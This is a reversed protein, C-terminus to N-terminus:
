IFLFLHDYHVLSFSAFSSLLQSTIKRIERIVGHLTQSELGQGLKWSVNCPTDTGFGVKPYLIHNTHM